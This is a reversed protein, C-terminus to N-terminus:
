QSGRPGKARLCLLCSTRTELRRMLADLVKQYVWGRQSMLCLSVTGKDGLQRCLDRHVTQAMKQVLRGRTTVTVDAGQVRRILMHTLADAIDISDPVSIGRGGFVQCVVATVVLHCQRQLDEPPVAGERAGLPGRGQPETVVPADPLAPPPVVVRQIKKLARGGLDKNRPGQQRQQRLWGLLADRFGDVEQLIAQRFAPQPGDHSLHHFVMGALTKGLAAQPGRIGEAAATYVCVGGTGGEPPILGEVVYDVGEVLSSLPQHIHPSLRCPSRTQVRDLTQLLQEKVYLHLCFAQLRAGVRLWFAGGEPGPASNARTQLDYGEQIISAIETAIKDTNLSPLARIASLEEAPVDLPTTQGVEAAMEELVRRITQIAAYTSVTVVPTDDPEPEFPTVPTQYSALTPGRPPPALSWEGGGDHEDGFFKGIKHAFKQLVQVFHKVIRMPRSPKRRPAPGGEPPPCSTLQVSVNKTVEKAVLRTIEKTSQQRAVEQVGMAGALVLPLTDGLAEKVQQEVVVLSTPGGEGSPGPPGPSGRPPPVCATRRILTQYTLNSLVEIMNLFMEVLHDETAEDIEGAQMRDWDERRIRKLVDQVLRTLSTIMADPVVLEVGDSQEPSEVM